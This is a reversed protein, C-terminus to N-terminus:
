SNLKMKEDDLKEPSKHKQYDEWLQRVLDLALLDGVNKRVARILFVGDDRLYQRVFALFLKKESSTDDADLLEIHKQIFHERRKRFFINFIWFIMNVFTVISLIFLWFWTIAYMKEVFLNISLVCQLTYRQINQLQRIEFDCMAIRPFENLDEWSGQETLVELIQFGYTSYDIELFKTLMFFQGVVNAFYLLKCFLYLGTLYTGQRRGLMFCIVGSLKQKVRILVNYKYERYAMLWSKIFIAIHKIKVKREKPPSMLTEEAMSVIKTVNIGSYTKMEKWVLNPIKFLLAQFLFLVPVWRYFSIDREFRKNIEVQIPEDMPVNYMHSIFCYNEAYKTHSKTFQAPNWCHIPDGVYNKAGSFAAFALFIGVSALHHMQDIGDDDQAGKSLALKSFAEIMSGLM